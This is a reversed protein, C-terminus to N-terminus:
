LCRSIQINNRYSNLTRRAALRLLQKKPSDKNTILKYPELNAHKFFFVFCADNIYTNNSYFHIAIILLIVPHIQTVRHNFIDRIKQIKTFFKKLQMINLTM